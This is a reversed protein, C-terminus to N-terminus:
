KLYSGAFTEIITAIVKDVVGKEIFGKHKKSGPHMVTIGMGFANHILHPETGYELYPIYHAITEDFVIKWEGGGVEIYSANFKLNGGLHAAVPFSLNNVVANDFARALLLDMSVGNIRNM